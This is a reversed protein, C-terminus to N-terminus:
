GGHDSAAKSPLFVIFRRSRPHDDEQGVNQDTKYEECSRGDYCVLIGLTVGSNEMVYERVQRAGVSIQEDGYTTRSENKGLWKVEFIYYFEGGVVSQIEIDTREPSLKGVEGSVRGDIVNNDLWRWLSRHLVKETKGGVLTRTDRDAWYTDMERPLQYQRHDDILAAYDRAQRARRGFRPERAGPVVLDIYKRTVGNILVKYGSGVVSLMVTGNDASYQSVSEEDAVTLEPHLKFRFNTDIVICERGLERYGLIDGVTMAPGELDAAYVEFTMYVTGGAQERLNVALESFERLFRETEPIPVHLAHGVAVAPNKILESIIEIYPRSLM